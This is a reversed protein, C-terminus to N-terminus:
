AHGSANEPELQIDPQVPQEAIGDAEDNHTVWRIAEQIYDPVIVKEGDGIVAALEQAFRGKCDSVKGLLADARAESGSDAHDGKLTTAVRPKVKSLAKLLVDWNGAMVLDWELTNTALRVKLNEGQRKLLAAATPSMTSERAVDSDDDGDSGDEGDVDRQDDGDAGDASDARLPDSDSILSCRFPLKEPGFLDVFPGFAVGGVNVVTVGHRSLPMGLLEALAPVLLQEAIGEVLLAGRAFFLSSKTVDLFRRLHDLAREDMGFTSPSRAVLNDTIADRTLITLRDVRASSAFNPSHSTVLVQRGSTTELELYRMLLDQLQPHLHAEPEEVLLVRLSADTDQELAALLVSMYLLNNYGLGNESLELPASRGMLARLASVIRDFTPEALALDSEPALTGSGTLGALRDQIRKKADSLAGVELLKRNAEELITEVNSRDGHGDPALASILAVLRNDRGPRLDSAADRLPHLFTFTVAERAWGEVDPHESDGGLWETDIRGSPRLHARLRLRAAGSGLSPALCTVMRASDAEDLDVLRAELEFQDTIRTGRGDHAFDGENIWLRARAGAEPEFLLRCADVVNSKGANNEGVLVALRGSLPVWGDLNRFGTAQIGQLRM